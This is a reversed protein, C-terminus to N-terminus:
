SAPQFAASGAGTPTGLTMPEDIAEFAEGLTEEELSSRFDAVLRTWENQFSKSFKAATELGTIDELMHSPDTTGNLVALNPDSGLFLAYLAVAKPIRVRRSLEKVSEEKLLKKNGTLIWFAQFVVGLERCLQRTQKRYDRDAREEASIHTDPNYPEKRVAAQFVVPKKETERAVCENYFTSFQSYTMNSVGFAKVHHKGHRCICKWAEICKELDFTNGDLYPTHLILCDIYAPEGPSVKGVHELSRAISTEVNKSIPDAVNFLM